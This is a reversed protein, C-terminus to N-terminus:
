HGALRQFHLKAPQSPIFNPTPKLFANWLSPQHYHIRCDRFIHLVFSYPEKAIYFEWLSFFILTFFLFSLIVVLLEIVATIIMTLM